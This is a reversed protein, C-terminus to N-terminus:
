IAVSATVYFYKTHRTCTWVVAMDAKRANLHRPTSSEEDTPGLIRNSFLTWTGPVLQLRLRGTATAYREAPRARQGSPALRHSLSFVALGATAENSVVIEAQGRKAM